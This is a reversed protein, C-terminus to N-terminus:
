GPPTGRQKARENAHRYEAENAERRAKNGYYKSRNFSHIEYTQRLGADMPPLSFAIRQPIRHMAGGCQPCTIRVQETMGHRVEVPAHTKNDCGYV